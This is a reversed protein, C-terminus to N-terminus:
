QDGDHPRADTRVEASAALPSWRAEDGVRGKFHHAPVELVYQVPHPPSYQPCPGTHCVPLREVGVVRRGPSLWVLDIPFAVERMWFSYDGPRDFIFLMGEGAPLDERGALGRHRDEQTRAVEVIWHQGAIEVRWRPLAERAPAELSAGLGLTLAM